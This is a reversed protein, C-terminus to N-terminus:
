GGNRSPRATRQRDQSVELGAGEWLLAAQDEIDLVSDVLLLAAHVLGRHESGFHLAELAVSAGELVIVLERVQLLAVVCLSTKLAPCPVPQAAVPAVGSQHKYRHGAWAETRWTFSCCAHMHGCWWCCGKVGGGWVRQMARHHRGDPRVAEEIDCAVNRLTRVGACWLETHDFLPFLHLATVVFALVGQGVGVYAAGRVVGAMAILLFTTTLPWDALWWSM